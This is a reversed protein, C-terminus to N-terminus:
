EAHEERDLGRRHVEARRYDADLDLFPLTPMDPVDIAAVIPEECAVECSVEIEEDPDADLNEAFIMPEDNRRDVLGDFPIM